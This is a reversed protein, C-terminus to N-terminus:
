RLIWRQETREILSNADPNLEGTVAHTLMLQKKLIYAAGSNPRAVSRTEGSFGAAYIDLKTPKLDNCPWVVIGDKANEEGQLLPGLIQIEDLLGPNGARQILQQTVERPIDRGGRLLSGDGTHLEFSPAFLRDEGSLNVVTYTMYFYPRRGQGPVEAWALRLAGPTIRLEWRRPVPEPQPAAIARAGDLVVAAAAAGLGLMALSGIVAAPRRSRRFLATFARSPVM